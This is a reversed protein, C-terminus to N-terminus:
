DDAKLGYKQVLRHVHNRAIGAERAMQSINGNCKELLAELYERTFSEVLREKAEKFPLDTINDSSQLSRASTSEQPLPDVEAGALSREVLNRLERVNGPWHYAAFRALLGRPLEFQGRGMGQVFHKTLLPIDDLRDRLAPVSVLVQLRMEPGSVAWIM